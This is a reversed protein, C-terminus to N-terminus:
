HRNLRRLARCEEEIAAVIQPRGVVTLFTTRRSRAESLIVCHIAGSPIGPYAALYLRQPLALDDSSQGAAAHLGCDSHGTRLLHGVTSKLARCAPRRPLPPAGRR